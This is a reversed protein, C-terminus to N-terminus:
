ASLRVVYALWAVVAGGAWHPFCCQMGAYWKCCQLLTDGIAVSTNTVRTKKTTNSLLAGRRCSVQCLSGMHEYVCRKRLLVSPRLYNQLLFSPRLRSALAVDPASVVATSHAVFGQGGGGGERGV